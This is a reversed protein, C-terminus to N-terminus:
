PAGPKIGLDLEFSTFFPQVPPSIYTKSSLAAEMCKAFPSDQKTWSEVAKGDQGISLVLSVQLSERPRVADMCKPVADNMAAEQAEYLRDGQQVSLHSEHEGVQARAESYSMDGTALQAMLAFVLFM